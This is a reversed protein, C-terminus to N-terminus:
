HHIEIRCRGIEVRGSQDVGSLVVQYIGPGFRATPVTIQLEESAPSSDTGSFGGAGSEPTVEYTYQPFQRPLAFSLSLVRVAAPVRLLKPESRVITPVAVPALLQPSEARRLEAQLGPVIRMAEYGVVGLLLVNAFTSVAFAPRLWELSFWGSARRAPPAAAVPTVNYEDRLVSRTNAAFVQEWHVEEACEGCEFFHEEFADRETEPLEGAVYQEAAQLKIATEHDM